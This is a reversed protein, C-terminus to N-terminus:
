DKSWIGGVGVVAMVTLLGVCAGLAFHRLGGPGVLGLFAFFAVPGSLIALFKLRNKPKM